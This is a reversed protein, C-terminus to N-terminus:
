KSLAAGSSQDIDDLSSNEESFPLPCIERVSREYCGQKNRVKVVRVKGDPGTSISEIIGWPWRLSPKTRDIILVKQGIKANPQEKSWKYRAQLDKWYEDRLKRFLQQKIAVVRKWRKLYSLNVNEVYPEPLSKIPDGVIFHGPTLPLDDRPDSSVPVLPRSNMTAEVMCLVTELESFTLDAYGLSRTLHYKAIKIASEWIGGHNPARAPICHWNTGIKMNCYDNVREQHESSSLLEYLDRFENKAGKFNTGNDSWMENPAGRRSVFRQLANIFGDTSMDDVLEIHVSKTVLCVFLCMYAKLRTRGRGKQKIYLPGAFDVGSSTFPRVSENLTVRVKPLHGMIQNYIIPKVWRCRLCNNVIRNAMIKGKIPWYKQRVLGLLTKGGAHLNEFHLHSMLSVTLWHDYPLVIPHKAEYLLDSNELRGGIRLIGNSDMYPNYKLLFHKTSGLSNSEVAHIIDGLRFRQALKVAMQVGNELDEVTLKTQTVNPDKRLIRIFKAAYAMIRQMKNWGRLKLKLFLDESQTVVFDVKPALDETVQKAKPVKNPWSDVEEHLFSPGNFWLDNTLFEKPRQGRSSKDAPNFDTPVHRWTVGKSLEQIETLRVAVFPVYKHPSNHVQHYVITADVWFFVDEIPVRVESEVIEKVSSWLQAMLLAGCLELRPLTRKKLPAVKTKACLLNVAIEGADSVTRVYINASYAKQSADSFGHIQIKQPKGFKLVYRPIRLDTLERLEKRMRTWEQQEDIPLPDDLSKMSATTRQMFLKLRVTVPQLKGIPDFVSCTDSVVTRATIPSDPLQVFFTFCDDDRIWYCGLTKMVEKDDILCLGQGKEDEPIHRMVADCSSSWKRLPMGGKELLAKTENYIQIAEHSTHAGTIGDDVYFHSKVVKAGVPFLKEYKDALYVLSQTAQYSSPTLGYTVTNLLYTEAKDSPKKRYLICQWRRDEEAILIQRYMKCMDMGMAIPWLQFRILHTFLSDQIVPGKMLIENLSEGSDTNSSGDFVVRLKTTTSGFNLVYFYPIYCAMGKIKDIKTCHGLEIYEKVFDHFLPQLEPNKALQRELCCLRRIAIGYSGGLTEPNKKFPQKVVVRGREDRSVTAFYHDVTRQEEESLLKPKYSVEEIEWFQRVANLLDHTSCDNRHSVTSSYNTLSFPTCTQHTQGVVVWGLLTNQLTPQGEKIFRQPLQWGYSYHANLILDIEQPVNFTPDALKYNEPIDWKAIDICQTPQKEKLYPDIVAWFKDHFKAAISELEIEVCGKLERFADHIGTLGVSTPKQKLGLMKVAKPTIVTLQAGGDLLVRLPILEGNSSKVKVVATGLFLYGAQDWPHTSSRSVLSSNNNVPVNSKQSQGLKAALKGFHLLSHHNKKCHECEMHCTGDHEETAKDNLCKLCIKLNRANNSRAKPSLKMFEPCELLTRCSGECIPCNTGTHASFIKKQAIPQKAPSAKNSTSFELCELTTCRDRLFSTFEDWTPLEIKKANQEEWKNVSKEDLKKLVLMLLIGDAIQEKSAILKLAEMQAKIGDSLARLAQTNTANPLNFLKKIFAEFIMRKKEFREKLMGRVVEYNEDSIPINAVYPRAKKEDLAELLLAQKRSNTMGRGTHNHVLTDFQNIFSPWALYDGSFKPVSMRPLDFNPMDITMTQNNMTSSNGFSANMMGSDHSGGRMVKLEMLKSDISDCRDEFVSRDDKDVEEPDIEELERQIANFDDVATKFTRIRSEIEFVNATAGKEVIFTELRTIQSKPVKRRRRLNQIRQEIGIADVSAM